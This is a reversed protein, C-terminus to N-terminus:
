IWARRACATPEKGFGQAADVHFFAESGALLEAIAAIPQVVGTENNVQMVSVLLTDDRVAEGVKDPAVWGGPEPDIWSVEFGRRQLWRVPELVAHHEVSSAVIHRRGVRRGHEELGLLALNNSETAGSTFIVEGRSAGALQAVQDRAREVARRAAAGYPHPRSGANGYEERLYHLLAAEVRPDLPTTSACDLYVPRQRASSAEPRLM